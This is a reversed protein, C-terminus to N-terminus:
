RRGRRAEQIDRMHQANREEARERSRAVVPGKLAHAMSILLWQAVFDGWSKDSMLTMVGSVVAGDDRGRRDVEVMAGHSAALGGAADSRQGACCADAQAAVLQVAIVCAHDVDRVAGARM